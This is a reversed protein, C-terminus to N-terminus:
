RSYARRVGEVIVRATPPYGAASAGRYNRCQEIVVDPACQTRRKWQARWARAFDNLARAKQAAELRSKITKAMDALSPRRAAVVHLVELIAYHEFLPVPGVLLHPQASFIARWVVPQTRLHPPRERTEHIAVLPGPKQHAILSGIGKGSRRLTAMLKRAESPGSLQEVINFSRKERHELSPISRAYAREVQSTTIKTRRAVGARLRAISAEVQELLRIDEPGGGSLAVGTQTATAQAARGDALFAGRDKSATTGKLWSLTILFGLTRKRLALYEEECDKRRGAEDAPSGQMQEREVCRKYRPPDSVQHTPALIGM